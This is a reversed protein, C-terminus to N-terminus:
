RRFWTGTNSWPEIIENEWFGDPHEVQTVIPVWGVEKGAPPDLILGHDIEALHLRTQDAPRELLNVSGDWNRHMSEMTMQLDALYSDTYFEPYERKMNWFVPQDIFRYWRYSIVSGDDLTTQHIEKDCGDPDECVWCDTNFTDDAPLDIEDQHNQLNTPNELNGYEMLRLKEPVEAETVPVIKEGVVEYYSSLTRDQEPTSRWDVVISTEGNRTAALLPINFNITSGDDYDEGMVKLGFFEVLPGTSENGEVRMPIGLDKFTKKWSSEEATSKFTEKFASIINVDFTQINQAIPEQEFSNPIQPPYAKIFTKGSEEIAFMPVPAMEIGTPLYRRAPSVGHTKNPNAWVQKFWTEDQISEILHDWSIRDNVLDVLAQGAPDGLSAGATGNYVDALVKLAEIKSENPEAWFQKYWTENQIRSILQDESIRDNVFDVLAQGAPDSLSEGVTWNFVDALVKLANWRAMRMNWHHPSYAILPGSYNASDIVFTWTLLGPSDGPSVANFENGIIPLAAWATGVSIGGDTSYPNQDEDFAILNPPVMMKNSLTIRGMVDCSIRKEYFGWGGGTDSDQSYIHTGGSAMYKPYYSRGMKDAVFLGGEITNFPGDEFSDSGIWQGWQGFQGITPVRDLLRYVRLYQSVGYVDPGAAESTGVYAGGMIIKSTYPAVCNDADLESILDEFIQAAGPEVYACHEPLYVGPFYSHDFLVPANFDQTSAPAESSASSSAAPEVDAAGASCGALALAATVSTSLVRLGFHKSTSHM